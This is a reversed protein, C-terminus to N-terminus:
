SIGRLGADSVGGISTIQDFTVGGNDWTISSSDWPADQIAVTYYAGADPVPTGYRGLTDSVDISVLLNNPYTFARVRAQPLPDGVSNKTIAGIARLPRLVLTTSRAFALAQRLRVNPM